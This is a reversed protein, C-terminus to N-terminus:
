THKKNKLKERAFFSLRAAIAACVAAALGLVTIIVLLILFQKLSIDGAKDLWLFIFAQCFGYIAGLRVADQKSKAMFGFSLALLGWPVLSLGSGVFLFRLSVISMVLAVAIPLWFSHKM